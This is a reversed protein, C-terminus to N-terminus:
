DNIAGLARGLLRTVTNSSKTNTNEKVKHRQDKSGRGRRKIYKFEVDFKLRNYKMKHIDLFRKVSSMKTIQEYERNM